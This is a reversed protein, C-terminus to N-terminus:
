CGHDIHSSTSRVIVASAGGLEAELGGAFERPASVKDPYFQSVVGCLGFVAAVFIGLHLAAKGPKSHTYPETSFVGLTDNDEHVPEGFNRREQPDWWDGYPDRLARKTAPPNIYGGNQILMLSFRQSINPSLWVMKPDVINPDLTAQSASRTQQRVNRSTPPRAVRSLVLRTVPTARSIIQWVDLSFVRLMSAYEFPSVYWQLVPEM